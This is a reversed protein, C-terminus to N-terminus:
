DTHNDGGLSYYNNEEDESGIEEQQDDLESAPVDLDNGSMDEHFSKENGKGPKEDRQKLHSPDETDINSEKKFQNYIDDEPAYVFPDEGNKEEEGITREFNKTNKSPLSSPNKKDNLKM